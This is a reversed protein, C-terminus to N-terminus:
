KPVIAVYNRVNKFERVHFAGREQRVWMGTSTGGDLNLARTVPARLLDPTALIEAMEALTVSRCILLGVRGTKDSVIVTRAAARTANLGAVPKGGDVLVPGAQLADQVGAPGKFEGARKLTVGGATAVFMGSLLKAREQKHLIQGQSIVLGLPTRDPHFYGGNVAALAGRAEAASALRQSGDPNDLVTLTHTKPRFLIVHIDASQGDRSVEIEAFSLDPAAPLPARKAVAWAADAPLIDIFFLVFLLVARKMPKQMTLTHQIHIRAPCLFSLSFM